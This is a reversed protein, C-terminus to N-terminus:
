TVVSGRAVIGGPDPPELVIVAIAVEGRPIRPASICMSEGVAVGSANFAASPAKPPVVSFRRPVSLTGVDMGAPACTMYMRAKSPVVHPGDVVPTRRTSRVAGDNAFM